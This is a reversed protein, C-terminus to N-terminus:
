IKLYIVSPHYILQLRLDIGCLGLISIDVVTMKKQIFLLISFESDSM